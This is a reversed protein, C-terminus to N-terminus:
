HLTFHKALQPWSFGLAGSLSVSCPLFPPPDPTQPQGLTVSTARDPWLLPGAQPQHPWWSSGNAPSVIHRLGPALRVVSHPSVVRIVGLEGGLIAALLALFWPQSWFGHDQVCVGMKDEVGVAKGERDVGM